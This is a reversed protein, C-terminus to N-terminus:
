FSYGVTATVTRGHGIMGRELDVLESAPYRQETDLLNSVHLAAYPGPAGVAGGSDWRLNLGLDWSGPVREGIREAVDASPGDVFDWDANMADVYHGYAAYTMGGRSYSAKLKALLSPSYGPDIDNARDETTQWTLSGSLDLGPLPRAEAILELGRTHWRGSADDVTRYEGTGADFTQITRV